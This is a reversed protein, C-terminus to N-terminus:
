DTAVRVLQRVSDSLINNISYINYAKGKSFELKKVIPYADRNGHRIPSKPITSTVMSSKAIVVRRPPPVAESEGKWREGKPNVAEGERAKGQWWLSM